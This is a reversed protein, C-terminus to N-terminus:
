EIVKQHQERLYRTMGYWEDFTFRDGKGYNCRKCCAVTNKPPIVSSTTQEIWTISWGFGPPNLVDQYGSM